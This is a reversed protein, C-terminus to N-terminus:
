RTYRRAAVCQLVRYCVAVCPLVSCCMAVCAVCPLVSCCAVVCQLVSCSVVVCLHATMLAHIAESCCVEEEKDRGEEGEVLSGVEKEAAEEGEM